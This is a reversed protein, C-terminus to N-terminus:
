LLKILKMGLLEPIQSEARKWGDMARFARNPVGIKEAVRYAAQGAERPSAGSGMAIGIIGNTGACVVRGSESKADFLYFDQAVSEPIEIPVGEATSYAEHCLKESKCEFPYPSVHVRVGAHFPLGSDVRKGHNDGGLAAAVLDGYGGEEGWVLTPTADYGCRPTFELAHPVGEASVISNTDIQGVYGNKQLFSSIPDLVMKFLRSSPQIQFITNFACGVSPGLNGTWCKKEEITINHNSWEEGNWWAEVSVEIGEVFKQIIGKWKVPLMGDTEWHAVQSLLDERNKACYSFASGAGDSGSLKIVVKESKSFESHLVSKVEEVASVEFTDPIPVGFERFVEMGYLRDYELKEAFTGGNWVPYGKSRYRDAVAGMGNECFVILDAQEALADPDSTKWVLGDGVADAAKDKVFMIADHGEDRLSPVLTLAEGCLSMLLINMSM